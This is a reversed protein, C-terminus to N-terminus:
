SDRFTVLDFVLVRHIEEVTQYVLYHLAGGPTEVEFTYWGGRRYRIPYRGTKNTPDDRLAPYVTSGLMVLLEASAQRYADLAELTEIVHYGAM